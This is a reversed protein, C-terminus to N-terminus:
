KADRETLRTNMIAYMKSDRPFHNEFPVVTSGFRILGEGPARDTIYSLQADSLRLKDCLVERDGDGQSLM